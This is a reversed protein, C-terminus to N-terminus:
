PVAIRLQSSMAVNNYWPFYYDNTLQNTPFGTLEYFSAFSPTTYLLRQTSLINSDSSVVHLPGENVSTYNKRTAAGAALTYSDIVANNAVYVTITTSAVGVNSVRLQSDATVNDYIPYTYEKTLQNAPFGSLESYSQDAYLVRVTTLINSDSSTVHLPGSNIGPYNKRTAEGAALTYSDLAINNGYTVTITTSAGGVNSVRLQSNMAVNNYYPYWYDKVLQNNPFGTLESYSKDAYLVRITTLINSASSTVHLPGNNIGAYNKRTAAGPALIYSDLPTGNGYTVTITTSAGGVNGVRLQSNMAVNNYYPFWYDNTLQSAPFGMLESYSVGGYLVRMSDIFPTVLSVVQSPGNNIGAYNERTSTAPALYYNGQLAGGIYVDVSNKNITYTEGSTFPLGNLPTGVLDTITASGPIDLRIAGNGSGTNVTVTYVNGSGSVGSVAAGTVGTKMLAFDDIDVGMVSKSFTVSFNVSSANTPSPNLRTISLVTPPVPLSANWTGSQTLYYYCIYPPAPIPIVIQRNTFSYNGTATYQSTFQGDFSYTSSSYNFQNGTINGPGPVTFETTGSTGCSPASWNTELVFTSWQSGSNAVKFSIPYSRSTTGTWLVETTVSFSWYATMSGDAYTSGYSNNARVQWYYTAGNNLGSLNASTATGTSIWSTCTNDNTTDYCYEYTSVGSSVGWSITPSTSQGTVGNAPSTKAFTGPPIAAATTFSWYATSSGNAFTTGDSNNARVHWYYSTSTSLGSLNASTTTGTSVWSSCASDNTTDYCYEYSAANSSASWSLIPSTSQGTAGDLPNAKNFAGPPSVASSVNLTLNTGAPSSFFSVAEIYYTTGATVNISLLSTM